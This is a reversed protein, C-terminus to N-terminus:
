TTPGEGYDKETREHVDVAVDALRDGRERFDHAYDELWELSELQGYRDGFELQRTLTNFRARAYKATDELAVLKAEIMDLDPKLM